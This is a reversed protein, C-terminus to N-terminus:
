AFKEFTKKFVLEGMMTIHERSANLAPIYHFTQGGEKLFFAKARIAVEELTELCDAAFGPCVVDVCKLNSRACTSLVDLLNPELWNTKGFRSQFAIQYHASPIALKEALLRVTEHCQKFYPDGRECYHKPLGHFSFILRDGKGNLRWFVEVSQTIAALYAPSQYYDKQFYLNPVVRWGMFIKAVKDFVAGTTTGSYQPYLPLIMIDQVDEEAFLALKNEISPAGYTMAYEVVHAACGNERLWMFLQRAQQGSIVDIPSGASTWITRYLSRMKYPRVLSIVGYLLPLWLIRPFEVVRPDRLFERLYQRIASITPAAPSGLNVLLIGIKEVTKM